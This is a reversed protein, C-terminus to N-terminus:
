ALHVSLLVALRSPPETHVPLTLRLAILLGGVIAVTAAVGAINTWHRRLGIDATQGAQKLVLACTFFSSWHLVCISIGVPIFYGHERKSSCAM